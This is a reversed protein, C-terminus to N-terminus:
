VGRPAYNAALVERASREIRVAFRDAAGLPGHWLAAAAISLAAGIALFTARRQRPLYILDPEHPRDKPRVIKVRFAATGAIVGLGLGEWGAPLFYSGWANM